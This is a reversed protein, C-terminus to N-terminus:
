PSSSNEGFLPRLNGTNNWRGLREVTVRASPDPLREKVLFEVLLWRFYHYQLDHIYHGSGNVVIKLIRTQCFKNLASSALENSVISDDSGMIVMTRTKFEELASHMPYNEDSAVRRAINVLSRADALPTMMDSVHNKAPLSFLTHARLVPANRWRDWDPSMTQEAIMKSLFAAASTQKAVADLLPQLDREFKSLQQPVGPTGKLMPGLLVISSIQSTRRKALDIAIRAGNCWALVDANTRVEADLICALDSTETEIDVEQQLGGRIIDSGRRQPVIIRFEHEVDGLLQNWIAVPTGTANVLLLPRSGRNRVYYAVDESIRRKSYQSALIESTSWCIRDYPRLGLLGRDAAYADVISSCLFQLIPDGVSTGRNSTPWQKAIYAM